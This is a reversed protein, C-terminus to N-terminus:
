DFAFNDLWSTPRYNTPTSSSLRSYDTELIPKRHPLTTPLYTFHHPVTSVGRATSSNVGFRTESLCSLWGADSFTLQHHSCIIAEAQAQFLVFFTRLV